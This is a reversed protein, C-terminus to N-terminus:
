ARGSGSAWFPVHIAGETASAAAGVDLSRAADSSGLDSAPSSRMNGGVEASPEMGARVGAEGAGGLADGQAETTERQRQRKEALMALATEVVMEAYEASDRHTALRSDSVGGSAVARKRAHGLLADFRKRDQQRRGVQGLGPADASSPADGDGGAQGEGLQRLLLERLRELLLFSSICALAREPDRREKDWFARLFSKESKCGDRRRDKRELYASIESRQLKTLRGSLFAHAAPWGCGAEPALAGQLRRQASPRRLGRGAARPPSEPEPPAAVPAAIAELPPLSWGVM